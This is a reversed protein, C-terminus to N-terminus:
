RNVRQELQTLRREHEAQEAQMTYIAQTLSPMDTLSTQLQKVENALVAIATTQATVTSALWAICGVALLEAITRVSGRFTPETPKPANM